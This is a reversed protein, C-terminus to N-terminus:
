SIKKDSCYDGAEDYYTRSIILYKQPLTTGSCRLLPNLSMCVCTEQDIVYFSNYFILFNNQFPCQKSIFQANKQLSPLLIHM